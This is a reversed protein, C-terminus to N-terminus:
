PTPSHLGLACSSLPFSPHILSPHLCAILALCGCVHPLQDLSPGFSCFRTPPLLIFPPNWQGALSFFFSASSRASPQCSRLFFTTHLTQIVKGGSMKKQPWHLGQVLSSFSHYCCTTSVAMKNETRKKINGLISYEKKVVTVCQTLMKSSREVVVELDRENEGLESWMHMYKFNPDGGGYAGCFFCSEQM